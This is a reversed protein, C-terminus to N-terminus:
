CDIITAVRASQVRVLQKFEREARSVATPTPLAQASIIKYAVETGTESDRAKWVEGTSAGGIRTLPQFRSKAADPAPQLRQPGDSTACSEQPCFNADDPYKTRCTPCLKM